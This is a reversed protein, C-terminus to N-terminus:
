EYLERNSYSGTTQDLNGTIITHVIKMLKIIFMEILFQICVEM